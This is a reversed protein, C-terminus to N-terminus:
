KYFLTIVYCFVVLTFLEKTNRLDCPINVIVTSCHTIPYIFVCMLILFSCKTSKTTFRYLNHYTNLLLYYM